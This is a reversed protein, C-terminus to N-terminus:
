LVQRPERAAIETKIFDLPTDVIWRNHEESWAWKQTVRLKRELISPLWYYRFLVSVEASKIQDGIETHRVDYETIRFDEEVEQLTQKFSTKDEPLLFASAKEWEQWRIFKNYDLVAQHLTQERTGSSYKGMTANCGVILLMATLVLVAKGPLSVKWQGKRSGTGGNATHIGRFLM